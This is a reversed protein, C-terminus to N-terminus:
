MTDSPVSREHPVTSAVVRLKLILYGASLPSQDSADSQCDPTTGVEASSATMLLEFETLTSPVATALERLRFLELMVM